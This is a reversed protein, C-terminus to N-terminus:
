PRGVFNMELDRCVLLGALPIVAKRALKSLILSM